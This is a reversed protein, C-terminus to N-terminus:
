APWLIQVALLDWSGVSLEDTAELWQADRQLSARFAQREAAIEEKRVLIQKEILGKLDGLALAAELEEQIDEQVLHGAVSEAKLLRMTEESSLPTPSYVPIAVYVLDEIIEVPTSATAYRVLVTFLATVEKVDSTLVGATRGYNELEQNFAEQKIIDLLRRVLPHGLDFVDIDTDYLGRTPDFTARNIKSPVGPIQLDPHQITIKYTGDKNETASCHFRNLGSFVFNQIAEKTGITKYTNTIQENIFDLSLDLLGYFSDNKIRQM